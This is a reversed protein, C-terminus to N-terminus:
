VWALEEERARYLLGLARATAMITYFGTFSIVAWALLPHVTSAKNLWAGLNYVGVCLAVCVSYYPLTRLASVLVLWPNPATINDLVAVALMAMPFYAIALMALWWEWRGRDPLDPDAFYQFALLPALAVLATWWVKLMPAFIDEVFNSADPFEPEGAHENTANLILHLFTACLYGFWVYSALVGFFGALRAFEMMMSLVGGIILVPLAGRRLPFSLTDAIYAATSM